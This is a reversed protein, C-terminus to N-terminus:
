KKFQPPLEGIPIVEIDVKCIHGTPDKSEEYDIRNLQANHMTSFSHSDLLETTEEDRCTIWYLAVGSPKKRHASVITSDECQM